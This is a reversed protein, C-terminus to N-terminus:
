NIDVNEFSMLRVNTAIAPRKWGDKRLGESRCDPVLGTLWKEIEKYPGACEVLSGVIRAGAISYRTPSFM